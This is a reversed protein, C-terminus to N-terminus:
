KWSRGTTLRKATGGEIPMEYIHGLLDFAISRGDPSVALSMLTGEAAQFSLTRTPGTPTEVNWPAPTQAAPSTLAALPFALLLTVALKM